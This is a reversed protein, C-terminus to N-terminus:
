TIVFGDPASKPLGPLIGLRVRVIGVFFAPKDNSAVLAQLNHTPWYAIQVLNGGRRVSTTLYFTLLNNRRKVRMRM